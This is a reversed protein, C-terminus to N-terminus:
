LDGPKEAYAKIILGCKKCTIYVIYSAFAVGMSVGKGIASDYGPNVSITTSGCEPCQTVRNTFQGTNIAM